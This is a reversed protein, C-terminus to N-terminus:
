VLTNRPCHYKLEESPTLTLKYQNTDHRMSIKTKKKINRITGQKILSTMTLPLQFFHFPPM